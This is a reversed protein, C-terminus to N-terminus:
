QTEDWQAIPKIEEFKPEDPDRDFPPAIRRISWAGNRLQWPPELNDGYWKVETLFFTGETTNMIRTIAESGLQGKLAHGTEAGPALSIYGDWATAFLVSRVRLHLATAFPVASDEDLWGMVSSTSLERVKAWRDLKSDARFVGRYSVALIEGSPEEVLREIPTHPRDPDAPAKPEDPVGGLGDGKHHERSFLDEARGRDIRRIFASSSLNHSDQGGYAWIQGDRLETFGHVWGWNGPKGNEPDIYPIVQKSGSSLGICSCWGGWQGLAAGLWLRGKSDLLFATARRSDEGFTIPNPGLDTFTMGSGLDHVASSRARYKYGGSVASKTSEIVAVIGGRRGPGAEREEVWRVRDPLRAVETMTLAAPDVRCVRGDEFGVLV